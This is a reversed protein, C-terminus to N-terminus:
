IPACLFPTFRNCEELSWSSGESFSIGPSAPSHSSGTNRHAGDKALADAIENRPVKSHGRVWYLRISFRKRMRRILSRTHSAIELQKKM